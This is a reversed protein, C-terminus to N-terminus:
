RDQVQQRPVPLRHHRGRDQRRRVGPPHLRLQVGQVRGAAPQTIVVKQDKFVKGGGEPIDATKALAKAGSGGAGSGTEPAQSSATSSTDGGGAASDESGGCATLVVAMGAGGAGLIVKRRTTETM